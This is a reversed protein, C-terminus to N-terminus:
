ATAPHAIEKVEPFKEEVIELIEKWVQAQM